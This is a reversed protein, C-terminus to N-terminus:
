LWSYNISLIFHLLKYNHYFRPLHPQMLLEAIFLIFYL